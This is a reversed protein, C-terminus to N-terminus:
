FDEEEEDMDLDWETFRRRSDVTNTIQDTLGLKERDPSAPSMLVPKLAVAVTAPSKYYKKM